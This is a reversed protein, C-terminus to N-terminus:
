AEGFFSAILQQDEARNETFSCNFIRDAVAAISGILPADGVFRSKKVEVSSYRSFLVSRDIRAKIADEIFTGQTKCAYGIIVHNIDLLNLLNTLAFAVYECFQDVVLMAIPEGRNAEEVYENWSLAGKQSVPSDPYLHKLEEARENMKKINAYLELCGTNGCACKPGMYNISMHGFEGSQGTNGEYLKNDLVVGAGTGNIMHLYVFNATDRGLGYIKEALAGANSDNILYTPKRTAARIIEVIHINALGHFDPPNLIMGRRTDVPGLSSISVAVIDRGCRAALTHYSELLAATLEDASKLSEFEVSVSDVVRGGLDAVITQLLGRRILMGCVCPSTEALGLLIPRRGVSAGDTAKMEKEVIINGAILESVINSLTMKALHTKQAIQSRSLPYNTCILEM